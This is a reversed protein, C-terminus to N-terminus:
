HRRSAAIPPAVAVPYPFQGNEFGEPLPGTVSLNLEKRNGAAVATGVTLLAQLDTTKGNKSLSKKWTSAALRANAITPGDVVWGATTMQAAFYEVFESTTKSDEVLVSSLASFPSGGGGGGFLMKASTPLTLRPLQSYVNEIAPPITTLVPASGNSASCLTFSGERVSTINVAVATPGSKPKSVNVNVFRNGSCLSRYVPQTSEAPVFGGGNGAGNDLSRWGPGLASILADIAAAPDAVSSDYFM